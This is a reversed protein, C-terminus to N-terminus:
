ITIGGSAYKRAAADRTEQVRSDIEAQAIALEIVEVKIAELVPIKPHDPDLEHICNDLKVALRHLQEKM